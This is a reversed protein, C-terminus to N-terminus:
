STLIFRERDSLNKYLIQQEYVNEARYATYRYQIDGNDEAVVFYKNQNLEYNMQALTAITWGSNDQIHLQVRQHIWNWAIELNHFWKIFLQDDDHCEYQVCVPEFPPPSGGNGANDAM